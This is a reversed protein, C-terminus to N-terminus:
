PHRVRAGHQAAAMALDLDVEFRHALKRTADHVVPSAHVESSRISLAELSSRLPSRPGGFAHARAFRRVSDPRPHDARMKLVSPRPEIHYRVLFEKSVNGLVLERWTLSLRYDSGPQGTAHGDLLQGAANRLGTAGVGNIAFRYAHHVSVREEPHLTVTFTAPDYVARRIAIRRGAPGILIYNKVDEASKPDLAQDFTLVITTPMKHYGYRAVSEVRPGDSPSPGASLIAVPTATEGTTLSKVQVTVAGQGLATIDAQLLIVGTSLGPLIFTPIAQTAGGELGVLNATVPGSTGILTASYSDTTNGTNQVTLLFTAEGPGPLTTSAPSFQATFSQTAPIALETMAAGQIAPNASSTASAVLPLNGQIAFDVAGTSIPVVQSAGPALTVQKLGLRAVLAAPGALALNYTDAITGTNTVTAQYGSGPAGSPPNLTVTVGGATVALTGSTSSSVAPDSASTATATFSYNGPTTGKAVDLALGVDRFNSVGPPVDITTQGLSATVSQPLGAVSLAYSDAVSGVNTVTLQYQAFTGQGATAKTPSLGLDVAQTQLAVDPAVTLEGEVSDAAGSATAAQVVFGLTGPTATIPTTITLPTSVTQGAPVTVSGALGVTEGGLGETTLSFTEATPYPNTIEVTFSAEGGRDVTQNPPTLNIIHEAAITVPPLTLTDQLQQGSGSTFQVTLNTGQSIARVEGPAMNAVQGALQFQQTSSSGSLLGGLWDIETSSSSGPTPTISTPDVAYGSPPLLHQVEVLAAISGLGSLPAVDDLANALYPAAVFNSPAGVLGTKSYDIFLLHGGNDAVYVHGHGDVAGQDFSVGFNTFTYDSVIKLTQPDIQTVHNTGYLILDGTFPDFSIGHAAPLNSFVRTTTFTKLDILGFNGPGNPSSSTYYANGASDFAIATITTDDGQLPHQIANAFPSLPVEELPGPQGSTWVEQGSPDLALHDAGAGGSVSTTQGTIPNVQTVTGNATLLAGNPLFILGDAPINGAITTYPGATFTSGNYTLNVKDVAGTYQTFYLVFTEGSSGGNAVNTANAAQITTTVNSTGPAVLPSSASATATIPVGVLLPSQASRGPIPSGDSALLTMKLTYLGNALGTTSVSGLAVSVTQDGPALSVPVDPATLVVNNSSDLVQLQALLNRTANATNFVSATVTVSDGANVAQPSATVSLVDAAAPRIAVVATATQDVIGANASVDLTFIATTQITQALTVSVTTSAGAALAVSNQGLSVSVGSPLTGVSLNLTEGDSATNTLTLTFTQGQGPQLDVQNPSLSATFQEAAEQNLVGTVANFLSTTGALLGTLNDANAAAILPALPTTETALAPDATFLTNLNGLDTQAETFLAPSTATQLASLTSALDALVMSLQSNGAAAAATSAGSIAVTQSSEVQLDIQDTTTVPAASPGFSATITTALTQDLPASASPTLTLTDTQSQGPALTIPALAGATVDAPTTAALTVNESVNGDNTLTLTATAAVGPTSALAAPTSVLSVADINPVTFTETQTQTIASNTASTATVTFSEQTGPAPIPQGPNPVLYVGLIGTAGAPVTVSTGSSVISFGSPVNSFALNYTDAAPGLNQISARFATPLQAGNFPVTFQPDPAVTFNIGPVTPTITVDVTTQAVLNADTQSQAVIQIPYTGSQLGQAPTATVNGSADIAVTWGAPANATLTYTDALSTQVNTAFTIPTNQNTTLTTPTTTVQLVNGANGNLAVADTGNGNASVNITGSYGDLTTENAPDLPKGGVSLAGTGPGLNITGNTATISASGSFTPSSTTGSGSLTASSTTITYTGAPLPQNNLTLAGAPVTLTISVNGTVTATYNQWDGSVGLTSEAPAYFSLSGSGDISYDTNGAMSLAAASQSSLAVTGSGLTAGRANVVTAADAGLSSALFGSTTRSAWGASLQGSVAVDSAQPSGGLKGPYLSAQVNAQTNSVALSIAPYPIRLNSWLTPIPPDTKGLLQLIYDIDGTTTPPYSPLPTGFTLFLAVAVKLFEKAILVPLNSKSIYVIRSVVLTGEPLEQWIIVYSGVGAARYGGFESIGQYAGDEGEAIMEGTSPDLDFWATTRAGDVILAQTPVIVTLGTQVNATIRAIADAPLNLSQLISLNSETLAVLPIGEEMSQLVIMAASLNQMGTSPPFVTAELFSDFMGRATAFARAAQTDQGPTALAGITDHMLDLSYSVSSQNDNISLQSSFATVRPTDFYAAVSFGSALNATEQDSCVAFNALAYGAISTLAQIQSVQTPSTEANVSATEQNARVAELQAAAASQLGPLINLTTLDFPTIVPTSSPGVSINEPNSLGQRAAYGIRDVLTRTFTEATSGPGSLTVNLFLGTLIQSALPFNTLVEQFPTGTIAEPLQSDPLAEDGMVIYPTYTNTTATFIFGTSSSSVFNGITLPRGVLQVDNFTQNLVTTDQLGSSLGFLASAQSYIEAVLQVQTTEELSQPVTTFTGTSTTFTQGITAGAMLPDADTMGSGTDFQFWYHSETEALLQPDNAPDSVQTGAPIYGVTQYSAPFMSLILSQAQSQSLTGSVYQAPIGSARMLAVGLSAVDLANGAGSWLTGRAGRVSGLYSNYGVQTHLYHFINTASYGLAAAQEQIFPDTTNADQTSALLSPDSVNGAQLAAAPTTASVLGANLMAYAAAGTDLMLTAPSPLNVTLSVSARDFGQITGLSWALNQGSQDPQQSASAITVGPALADTLLVGTEPSAQENYVTYTITVQNNQVEGVFYSPAPTASAATTPTALTRGVVIAAPLGGTDLMTRDELYEFVLRHIRTKERLRVRTTSRSGQRTLRPSM